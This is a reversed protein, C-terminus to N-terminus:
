ITYLKNWKSFQCFQRWEQNRWQRWKRDSKLQKTCSSSGETVGELGRSTLFQLCQRSHGRDAGTVPLHCLREKPFKPFLFSSSAPQWLTSAYPTFVQSLCVSLYAAQMKKGTLDEEQWKLKHAYHEYRQYCPQLNSYSSQLHCRRCSHAFRFNYAQSWATHTLNWKFSFQSQKLMFPALM